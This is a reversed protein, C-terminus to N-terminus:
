IMTRYKDIVNRSCDLKSGELEHLEMSSLDTRALKLMEADYACQRREDKLVAYFDPDTKELFRLFAKPFNLEVSGNSDSLFFKSMDKFEPHEEPYYLGIGPNRSMVSFEPEVMRDVYEDSQLGMDKKKVYRAVYACTRYSMSSLLCFGNKWVEESLWDSKYYQQGLENCGKPVLDEFDDLSVGYLIMHYHPRKTNTGYEGCAYYRLERDRFIKTKRLRKMFLQLDRKKLTNEVQGTELNLYVPLHFDNYTLTIFVAKKSHDLELIMRDSWERCKAARCAACKGCPIKIADPHLHLLNNDYRGLVNYKCKGSPLIDGKVALMPYKCSM